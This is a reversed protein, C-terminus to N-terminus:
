ESDGEPIRYLLGGSADVSFLIRQEATEGMDRLVHVERGAPDKLVSEAPEEEANGPVILLAIGECARVLKEAPTLIEEGEADTEAEGAPYMCVIIFECGGEQMEAIWREAEGAPSPDENEPHAYLYGGEAKPEDGRNVLSLIGIRRVAGEIMIECVAWPMFVNEGAEHIGDSGDYYM